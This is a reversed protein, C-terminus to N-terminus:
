CTMIDPLAFEECMKKLLIKLQKQGKMIEHTNYSWKTLNWSFNQQFNTQCHTLDASSPFQGRKNKLQQINNDIFM